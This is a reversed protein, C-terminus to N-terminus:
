PSPSATTTCPEVVTLSIGDVTISGKEVVYRLLGRDCASGCTPPPRRRDRRRRRRPGARPPRGLRDSLRVPRELNVPHGPELAGLATRAYSEDVM